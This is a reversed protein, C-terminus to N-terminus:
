DERVGAPRETEPEFDARIASKAFVSLTGPVNIAEKEAEAGTPARVEVWSEIARKVRVRWIHPRPM